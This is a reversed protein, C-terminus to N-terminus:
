IYNGYSGISKKKVCVYICFVDVFYIISFFITHHYLGTIALIFVVGEFCVSSLYFVKNTNINIM